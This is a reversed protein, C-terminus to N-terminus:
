HLIEVQRVPNWPNKLFCLVFNVYLHSQRFENIWLTSICSLLQLSFVQTLSEVKIGRSVVTIGSRWNKPMLWNRSEWNSHVDTSDIYHGIKTGSIIWIHWNVKWIGCGCWSERFSVTYGRLEKKCQLKYARKSSGRTRPIIKHSFLFRDKDVRSIDSTINFVEVM